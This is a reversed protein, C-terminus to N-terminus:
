CWSGYIDIHTYNNIKYWGSNARLYGYDTYLGCSGVYFGDVDVGYGGKTEGPYIWASAGEKNAWDLTYKVRIGSTNTLKGCTYWEDPACGDLAGIGGKPEDAEPAAQATTPAILTLAGVAVGLTLARLTRKVKNVIEEGKQTVDHSCRTLETQAM